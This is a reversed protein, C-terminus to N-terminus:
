VYTFRLRTKPNELVLMNEFKRRKFSNMEHWKRGLYSVDKTQVEVEVCGDSLRHRKIFDQEILKKM